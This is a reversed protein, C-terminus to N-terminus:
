DLRYELTATGRAGGTNRVEASVGILDGVDATSPGAFNRVEVAAQSATVEIRTTPGEGDVFVGHRYTGPRLNPVTGTLRVTERDGADLRLSTEAVVRDGIRYEVTRTARVNGRNRVTASVSIRDGVRASPPGVLNSVAFDAGEVIRLATTQGRNTRDVFVGQTYTGRSLSPVEVDFEIDTSRGAQLDVRQRDIVQSGIRYEIPVDARRTGDNSVRATVLIDEGRTAEAPAALRSIRFNASPLADITLSSSLGVGTGGIEVRQEYTGGPRDPVTGSLSVLGQAGPDLTLSSTAITQGDIRYRVEASGRADGTNRVAATATISDGVSAGAPAQLSTISFSAAPVTITLARTLGNTTMEEYVGQLYSGAALTPVTGTFSVTTQEGPALTVSNSAVVSGHIRYQFTRTGSADGTNKITASATVTDGVRALDPGELSLVAFAAAPTGIVIQATSGSDSTGLFIGQQYTGTALNPVTGQLTVTVTDNPAVTISSSALVQGAIRYQVITSATTNGANTITVTATVSQGVNAQPPGQFNSLTLTGPEATQDTVSPPRDPAVAVSLGTSAAMVMLVVGVIPLATDATRM